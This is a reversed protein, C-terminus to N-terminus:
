PVLRDHQDIRGGRFFRHNVMSQLLFYLLVTLVAVFLVRAISLWPSNRGASRSADSKATM